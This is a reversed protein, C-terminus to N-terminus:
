GTIALLINNLIPEVICVTCIEYSVDLVLLDENYLLVHVM